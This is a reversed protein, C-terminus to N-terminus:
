RSAGKAKGREIESVLNGLHIRTDLMANDDPMALIKLYAVVDAIAENYGERNACILSQGEGYDDVAYVTSQCAYVRGRVEGSSNKFVATEASGCYPCKNLDTM